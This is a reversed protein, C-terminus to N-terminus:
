GERIRRGTRAEYGFGAAQTGLKGGGSALTARLLETALSTAPLSLEADAASTRPTPALRSPWRSYSPRPPSGAVVAGLAVM